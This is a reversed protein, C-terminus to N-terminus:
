LQMSVLWTKPTEITRPNSLYREQGIRLLCAVFCSRWIMSTSSMLFKEPKLLCGWIGRARPLPLIMPSTSYFPFRHWESVRHLICLTLPLLGGSSPSSYYSYVSKWWANARHKSKLHNLVQAPKHRRPTAVWPPPRILHRSPYGYPVPVGICIGDFGLEPRPNEQAMTHDLAYGTWRFDFKWCIIDIYIYLSIYIYLLCFIIYIYIYYCINLIM